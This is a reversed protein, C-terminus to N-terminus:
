RGKLYADRIARARKRMIRFSFGFLRLVKDNGANKASFLKEWGRYRPEPKYNLAQEAMLDFFQTKSIYRWFLDARYANLSTGPKDKTYHLIAPDAIARRYEALFNKFEPSPEGKTRISGQVNWIQPLLKINGDFAVNIVDQDHRPYDNEAAMSILSKKGDVELCKAVDLVLMGSNVYTFAYRRDPVGDEKKSFASAAAVDSVAGIARGELDAEYLPKLDKLVVMDCDLYIVRRYNQFIEPIMLRYYAAATIHHSLFLERCRDARAALSFFRLSAGPRGEVIAALRSRNEEAAEGATLLVIDYSTAPDRNDLLSQVAAAVYPFYNDDSCLIVPVADPALPKVTDM